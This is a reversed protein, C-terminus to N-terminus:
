ILWNDREHENFFCQKKEKKVPEGNKIKWIVYFSIGMKRGVERLSYTEMLTKAQSLVQDTVVSPRGARM